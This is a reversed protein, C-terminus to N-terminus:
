PPTDVHAFLLEPRRPLERIYDRVDSLLKVSATRHVAAERLYAVATLARSSYALGSSSLQEIARQCLAEVDRLNSERLRIEALDLAVVAATGHMGLREFDALVAELRLAAEKRNGAVNLLAAVNWRARAAEGQMNLEDFMFAATSLRDLSESFDGLERLYFGENMILVARQQDSVSEGFSALVDRTLRLANRYDSIKSALYAESAIASAVRQLDGCDEFDSKASEVLLLAEHTRDCQRLALARILRTRAIDYGSGCSHEFLQEALVAATISKGIEGTYFLAFAQARVAAAYTRGL